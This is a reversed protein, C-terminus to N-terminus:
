MMSPKVEKSTDRRSVAEANVIVEPYVNYLLKIMELESSLNSANIM